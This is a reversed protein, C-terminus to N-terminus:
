GHIYTKTNGNTVIEVGNSYIVNKGKKGRRDRSRFYSLLDDNNVETTNTWYNVDSERSMDMASPDYTGARLSKFLDPMIGRYKKTAAKPLIMMSEGREVKRQRGDKTMGLSMDNGSKHSGGYDFEEYAGDAYQKTLNSAKIKAAAFSGFMLGILPISILPNGIQSFIKTAATALNITQEISQIVQQQKQAAKQEKLADQQIKKNAALEAEATTVSNAFGANRAAIERSLAQESANVERNAAAVNQDAIQKRFNAFDTLQKKAFSFADAIGEKQDDELKIGLLDYLDKEKDDEKIINQREKDLAALQQEFLDADTKTLDKTVFTRQFLDFEVREKKQDVDFLADQLPTTDKESFRKLKETEQRKDFEKLNSEYLKKRDEEAKKIRDLEEKDAKEQKKKKESFYKYLLQLRQQFFLEETNSIDVGAEELTAITTDQQIKLLILDKQLGDKLIKAELNRKSLASDADKKDYKDKIERIEIQYLEELGKTKVGAKRYERLRKDNSIELLALEREQDDKILNARLTRRNIEDAFAKDAAAIEEKTSKKPKGKGRDGIGLGLRALIKDRASDGRDGFVRDVQPEDRYLEYLEKTKTILEDDKAIRRNTLDIYRNVMIEQRSLGKESEKLFLPNGFGTLSKEYFTLEDAGGVRVEVLRKQKEDKRAQIKGVEEQQLRAAINRQIAANVNEQANELDELGSKELDINSLIDPHMRLLEFYVENRQKLPVTSDKIVKFLDNIKEKEVGVQLALEKSSKALENQVIVSKGVQENLYFLGGALATAVGLFLGFPNLAMAIRLRALSAAMVNQARTAAIVGIKYALLIPAAVVLAKGLAVLLGINDKIAKAGATLAGFFDKFVGAADLEKVLNIISTEFRGQAAALNDVRDVNEIGYTKELEKAFKPLADSALVEGQKIMDALQKTSVKLARAMIEVSGPLSDGLQQRLEEASVTGKSMIQELANFVRDTKAAELGLVSASKAVSDFIQQQEKMSLTSSKSAANFRLYAKSLVLVNQGYSEATDAIFKQVQANEKMNPITKEFALNLSDLKKTDTFVKRFLEAAQTVSFYVAVLNRLSAGVRRHSKTSNENATLQRGTINELERIENGLKDTVKTHYAQAAASKQVSSPLRSFEEKTKKLQNVLGQQKSVAGVLSGKYNGVNLATKGTAAQLRKMEEYIAKSQNEMDRGAKTSSRESASMANLKIKLLDYQAALRNYSGVQENSIRIELKAIDVAKKKEKNTIDIEAKLRAMTQILKKGSAGTANNARKLKDFQDTATKLAAKLGKISSQHAQNATAAAKAKKAAKATAAAAAKQAKVYSAISKDIGKVKSQMLEYQKTLEAVRAILKGFEEKQDGLAASTKSLSAQLASAKTAMEETIAVYTKRLEKLEDIALRIAGDDEYLDKATIKSM